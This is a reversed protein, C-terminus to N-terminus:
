VNHFHDKYQIRLSQCWFANKTANNLSLKSWMLIAIVIHKLYIFSSACSMCCERLVAKGLCRFLLSSFWFSIFSMDGIIRGVFLCLLVAFSSSIIFYYSYTFVCIHRYYCCVFMVLFFPYLVFGCFLVRIFVSHVLCKIQNEKVHLEPVSMGKSIRNKNKKKKTLIDAFHIEHKRCVTGTRKNM